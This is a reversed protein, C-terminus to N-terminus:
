RGRGLEAHAEHGGLTRFVREGGNLLVEGLTTRLAHSQRERLVTHARRTEAQREIRRDEPQGGIDQLLHVRSAREEAPLACRNGHDGQQLVDGSGSRQQDTEAALFVLDVAGVFGESEVLEHADHRPARHHEFRKDSAPIAFTWREVDFTSCPASVTRPQLNLTRTIVREFEEKCNGPGAKLIGSVKKNRRYSLQISRRGGFGFTTPEIGALRM